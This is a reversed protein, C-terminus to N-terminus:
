SLSVNLNSKMFHGNSKIVIKLVNLNINNMLQSAQVNRITALVLYHNITNRHM